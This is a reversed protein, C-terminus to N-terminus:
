LIHRGSVRSMFLYSRGLEIDLTHCAFKDDTGPLFFVKYNEAKVLELGFDKKTM